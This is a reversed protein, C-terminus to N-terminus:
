SEEKHHLSVKLGVYHFDATQETYEKHVLKLHHMLQLTSHGQSCSRLKFMGLLFDDATRYGTQKLVM